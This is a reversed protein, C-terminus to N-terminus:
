MVVKVKYFQFLFTTVKEPAQYQLNSVDLPTILPVTQFGDEISVTKNGKDLLNGGLKVMKIKYVGPQSCINVIEHFSM